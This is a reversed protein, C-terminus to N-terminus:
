NSSRGKIKNKNEILYVALFNVPDDPQEKELITFAPKLLPMVTKEIYESPTCTKLYEKDNTKVQKHETIASLDDRRKIISRNFAKIFYDPDSIAELTDVEHLFTDYSENIPIRQKTSVDWVDVCCDEDRSINDDFFIQHIYADTRDVLLLKGTRSATHNKKHSSYFNHDERVGLFRGRKITNVFVDYIDKFNNLLEYKGQNYDLLAKVNELKMQAQFYDGTAMVIGDYDVSHRYIRACNNSTAEFIMRSNKDNFKILPTGNLGNYLPHQGNFFSILM